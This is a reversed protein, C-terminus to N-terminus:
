RASPIISSRSALGARWPSPRLRVSAAAVAPSPSAPGPVLGGRPQPARWSARLSRAAKATSLVWSVFVSASSRAASRVSCRAGSAASSPRGCSAPAPARAASRGTASGPCGGGAPRPACSASRASSASPRRRSGSGSSPGRGAPRRRLRRGPPSSRPLTWRCPIRLTECSSFSSARREFCRARCRLALYGRRGCAELEGEVLGVRCRAVKAPLGLRVQVSMSSSSRM